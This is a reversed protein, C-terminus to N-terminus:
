NQGNHNDKEICIPKGDRDLRPTLGGFVTGLYQCGTEHDIYISLGSRKKDKINDTVDYSTFWGVKKKLYDPISPKSLYVIITFAIIIAGIITWM